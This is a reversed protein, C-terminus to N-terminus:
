PQFYSHFNGYQVVVYIVDDLEETAAASCAFLGRADYDRPVPSVGIHNGRWV